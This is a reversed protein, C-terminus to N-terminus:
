PRKAQLFLHSVERNFTCPPFAPKTTDNVLGICSLFSFDENLFCSSNEMWNSIESWFSKVFPCEWFLHLLTESSEKCFSCQDSSKIGIKFLFYNTALKRHLLKFQFVRLKSENTCLFALTYSKGWDIMDIDCSTCDALWKAQSKCPTSASQTLFLKYAVKCFTESSLLCKTDTGASRMQPCYNKRKLNSIACIVGHYQLFHAKIAFKEKFTDFTLFRSDEELLDSVFYIGASSWNRYHIPKNDIRILSNYWIPTEGFNSFQNKFNLLSWTEILEKTFPEEIGLSAVDDPNLNGHM